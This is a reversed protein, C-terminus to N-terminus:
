PYEYTVVLYPKNASANGSPFRAWEAIGDSSITTAFKIRFQSRYGRTAREAWSYAVATRVAASKAGLTATTSLTYADDEQVYSCSFVPFTVCRLVTRQLPALTLDTSNLSTGYDVREAILNGLGGTYPNGTTSIYDQYVYLTAENVYTLTSALVSLDFSVFARGYTNGDTLSYDDGAYVYSGTSNVLEGSLWIYGDLSAVSYLTATAQRVVRFGFNYDAAMYNGALDKVATSVRCSVNDGYAFDTDPNFTMTLGDASWTFVGTNHGSPALVQFAAQASGKDVAESFTVSISVTRAAGQATNAPSTSAVTPKTTDPAAATTFSFHFAAALNTGAADQAGTALTVTYPTSTALPTAHNCTALTDGGLWSWSCTVAPTASFAAQVSAKDMPESFVLEIAATSPVGTAGNSPTSSQVTPPEGVTTFTFDTSAPLANGAVDAGAITVTYVTEPQLGDPPAFLVQTATENWQPEGLATAPTIGVAVTGVDMPETFVIVIGVDVAQGTAGDSPTTSSLGPDTTDPTFPTTFVEESRGSATGASDVAEVAFFYTQGNTLGTLTAQSDGGSAALALALAGSTTGSYVNVAAVDADIPNWHLTAEGDGAVAVLGTPTPPPGPELDAPDVIASCASLAALGLISALRTM